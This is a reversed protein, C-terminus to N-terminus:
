AKARPAGQQLDIRSRSWRPSPLVHEVTVEYHTRAVSLSVGDELARRGVANLRRVLAKPDVRV